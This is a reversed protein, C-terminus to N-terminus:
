LAARALAEIVFVILYVPLHVISCFFVKRADGDSRTRAFKVSFLVMALGLLVGATATAVGALEPVVRLPVLTVPILVASTVILVAATHNGSADISPLMRFGGKEYDKRCMWAIAFFHPLQWVFMLVFLMLGIPDLLAAFGEMGSVASSGILVPLAGPVAGVLTNTITRTKLPTYIVVYSAATVIAVMASLAGLFVGLVASGLACLTLGFVLVFGSSLRSSPIPRVKTREMRADLDSEYWMNLANAGGSALATGTACALLLTAWTALGSM